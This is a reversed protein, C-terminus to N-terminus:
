RGLIRHSSLSVLAVQSPLHIPIGGAQSEWRGVCKLTPRDPLSDRPQSFASKESLLALFGLNRAKLGSYSM